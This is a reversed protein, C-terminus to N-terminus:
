SVQLRRNEGIEEPARPRGGYECEQERRLMEEPPVGIDSPQTHDHSHVWSFRQRVSHFYPLSAPLEAGIGAPWGYHDIISTICERRRSSQLFLLMRLGGNTLGLILIIQLPLYQAQSPGINAVKTILNELMRM